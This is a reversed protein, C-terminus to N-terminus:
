LISLKGFKGINLQLMGGWETVYGNEIKITDGENIKNAEDGWLVLIIDGTEDEIVANTVISKGFRTNVERPERKEIVKAIINVKRSNIDIESIKM